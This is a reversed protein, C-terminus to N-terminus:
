IFAEHCICHLETDPEINPETDYLSSTYPAQLQNGRRGLTHPDRGLPGLKPNPRQWDNFHFSDRTFTM